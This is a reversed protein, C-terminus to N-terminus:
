SWVRSERRICVGNTEVMPALVAENANRAVITAVTLVYNLIKRTAHVANSNLTVSM